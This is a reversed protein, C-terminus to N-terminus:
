RGSKALLGLGDKMNQSYKKVTCWLCSSLGVRARSTGYKSWRRRRSKASSWRRSSQEDRCHCTNSSSFRAATRSSAPSLTSILRLRSGQEKLWNMGTLLKRWQLDCFGSITSLYNLFVSSCTQRLKLFYYNLLKGFMMLASIWNIFSDQFIKWHIEHQRIRNWLWVIFFPFAFM